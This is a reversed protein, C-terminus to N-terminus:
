NGTPVREIRDIVLTRVPEKRHELKLGLSQRIATFLDPGPASPIGADPQAAEAARAFNGMPEFARDPAWSLDIDYRGELGTFDQVPGYGRGSLYHALGAMTMSGKIGAVGSGARFQVQGARFASAPGSPKCKPGDKDVVLAYVPRPREEEHAELKFREVLLGRLMAPVQDKTAGEPMRAFIEFCDEDLWSPGVIEESKVQYAEMLIPKLPDGKLSLIGPDVSNEVSCRDTRKVSVAEFRPQAEASQSPAGFAAPLALLVAACLKM